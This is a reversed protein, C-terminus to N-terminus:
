YVTGTDMDVSYVYRRKYDAHRGTFSNEETAGAAGSAANTPVAESAPLVEPEPPNVRSIIDRYFYFAKGERWAAYLMGDRMIYIDKGDCYGWADHTYYSHGAERIYLVRRNDEVQVEFDGISPANNRFEEFSTYVGRTLANATGPPM